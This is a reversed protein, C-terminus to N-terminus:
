IMGCSSSGTADGEPIRTAGVKVVPAAGAAALRLWIRASISVITSAMLCDM